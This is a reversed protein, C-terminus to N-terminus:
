SVLQWSGDESLEWVPCDSRPTDGPGVLVVSWAISDLTDFFEVLPAPSVSSDPDLKHPWAVVVVVPPGPTKALARIADIADVMAQSRLTYVPHAVDLKDPLDEVGLLIVRRHGSLHGVLAPIAVDPDTVRLSISAGEPRPGIRGLRATGVPELIAPAQGVRRGRLLVLVLVLVLVLSLTRWGSSIETAAPKDAPKSATRVGGGKKPDSADMSEAVEAPDMPNFPDPPDPPDPLGPLVPPDFPEPPEPSEPPEPPDPALPAGLSEEGIEMEEAEPLVGLGFPSTSSEYEGSADISVYRIGAGGMMTTTALSRSEGDSDRLNISTSFEVADTPGPLWGLCTFVEDNPRRDFVEGDDRCRHQIDGLDSAVVLMPAGAEGTIRLRTILVMGPPSGESVHRPTGISPDAIVQIRGGSKELGLRINPASLPVAGAHFARNDMALMVWLESGDDQIVDCSWVKDVAADPWLGDDRCSAAHVGAGSDALVVVARPSGVGHISFEVESAAAAWSWLVLLIASM